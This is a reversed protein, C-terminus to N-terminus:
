RLAEHLVRGDAQPLTVGALFALTPAIDAPTAAETLRAARIGNGFLVVPVRRDYDHATGHGTAATSNRAGALWGPQTVIVLDGSRGPVYSLAVARVIPDAASPSLEDAPLVRLVGPTREISAVVQQWLARDAHLRALIGPGFYVNPTRVVAYYGEKAAGWRSTLLAELREELDESVVRGSALAQPIPAVGHDATLAVVYGSPGIRRDLVDLLDGITQDLNILVDEVERSDPGFAHGVLDLASFGIALVDPAQDAGLQLKEVLSAAMRGLYRDSQPSQMWFAISRADPGSPGSIAHPFVGDRGIPPRQGPTADANLYSAATKSLTWAGRLEDSLPNTSLFGALEPSPGAAYARSTVFAGAGGDFWTVVDGSHGALTVATDPKLSLSVVRAAPHRRRVEDGITTARLLHPGNGLPVPRGYSIHAAEASADITCDVGAAHERDWWLNGVIGHTRPLAGTAVTAHGACTVTNAFSYAAHEFVAGDTVLRRFGREWHRQFVALYDARMQDVVLIVLLRPPASQGRLPSVCVAASLLLATIAAVGRSSFRPRAM